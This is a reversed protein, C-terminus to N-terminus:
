IPQRSFFTNIMKNRVGPLNMFSSVFFKRILPKALVSNMLKYRRQFLFFGGIGILLISIWRSM